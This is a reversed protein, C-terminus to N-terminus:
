SQISVRSKILSIKCQGRLLPKRLDITELPVGIRIDYFGVPSVFITPLAVIHPYFRNDQHKLKEVRRILDTDRIVVAKGSIKDGIYKELYMKYKLIAINYTNSKLTVIDGKQLIVTKNKEM